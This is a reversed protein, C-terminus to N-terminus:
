KAPAPEEPDLAIPLEYSKAAEPDVNVAGVVGYYGPASVNFSWVGKGLDKAVAVGNAGVPLKLQKEGCIAVVAAGAPAKNSGAATITVTVTAAGASAPPKVPPAPEPPKVPPAPEPPRVPSVPEPPKVPPVPPPPKVPAAGEAVLKVALTQVRRQGADV